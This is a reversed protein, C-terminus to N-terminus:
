RAAEPAPALSPKWACLALVLGALSGTVMWLTFMNLAGALTNLQISVDLLRIMEPSGERSSDLRKFRETSMILSSSGPYM